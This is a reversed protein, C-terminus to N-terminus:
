WHEAYPFRGFLIFRWKEAIFAWCAGGSAKCDAGKAATWTADILMWRLLGPVVSVIAYIAVLTLVTNLPSNFLNARLWGIAGITSPPPKLEATGGTETLSAM